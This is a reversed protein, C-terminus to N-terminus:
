AAEDFLKLIKNFSKIATTDSMLSKMLGSADMDLHLSVTEILEIMLGYIRDALTARDLLNEVTEFLEGRSEYAEFRYLITLLIHQFMSITIHAIQHDLNNSQCAGMQFLQKCERFMVEITWRIQYIEFVQNFSLNLDSALIMKWKGNVGQRTFFINVFHGDMQVRAQKYYLRNKRSRTADPLSKFVEKLSKKQQNYIVLRDMDKLMGILHIKGKNVAKVANLFPISTFWSDVLVYQIVLKHKVARKLIAIATETKKQDLEDKRIIGASDKGREYSFVRKLRKLDFGFPKSSNQGKERHLSFDIPIINCGDWYGAVLAKYGLVARRTVHDFVYSIGEITKGTKELITDDIIVCKVSQRLSLGAKLNSRKNILRLSSVVFGWLMARWDLLPTNMMRYFVDKGSQCATEKHRRILYNINQINLYSFAILITIIQSIPVGRSKVSDQSKLVRYLDGAKFLDLFIPPTLSDRKYVSLLEKLNKTDKCHLM